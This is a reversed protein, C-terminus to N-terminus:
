PPPGTEDLGAQAGQSRQAKETAGVRVTVLGLHGCCTSLIPPSSSVEVSTLVSLPSADAVLSRQSAFTMTGSCPAFPVASM